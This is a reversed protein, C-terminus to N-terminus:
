ETLSDVYGSAVFQQLHSWQEPSLKISQERINHGEELNDGVVFLVIHSHDRDYEYLVKMSKTCGCMCRFVKTVM